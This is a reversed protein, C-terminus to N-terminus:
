YIVSRKCEVRCKVLCQGKYCRNNSYQDCKTGDEVYRGNYQIGESSSFCVLRCPQDRSLSNLYSPTMDNTGYRANVASCQASRYDIGSRCPQTNCIAM